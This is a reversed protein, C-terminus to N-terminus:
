IEGRKLYILLRLVDNTWINYFDDNHLFNYMIVRWDESQDDDETLMINEVKEIFAEYLDEYRNDKCRCWNHFEKDASLQKYLYDLLELTRARYKECIYRDKKFYKEVEPYLM